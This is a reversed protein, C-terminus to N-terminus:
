RPKKKRTTWRLTRLDVLSGGCTCQSQGENNYTRDCKTCLLYKPHDVRARVIQYLYYLLALVLGALLQNPLTAWYENWPVPGSAEHFHRPSPMGLKISLFLLIEVAVFVEIARRPSFREKREVEKQQKNSKKAWM